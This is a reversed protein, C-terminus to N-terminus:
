TPVRPKPSILADVETWSFLEPLASLESPM